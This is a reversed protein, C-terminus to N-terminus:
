RCTRRSSKLAAWLQAGAGSPRPPAHEDSTQKPPARPGVRGGKARAPDPARRVHPAARPGCAEACVAPRVGSASGLPRGLELLLACNSNFPEPWHATNNNPQGGPRRSPSQPFASISISLSPPSFARGLSFCRCLALPGIPRGRSQSTQAERERERERERASRSVLCFPPRRLAGLTAVIVTSPGPM